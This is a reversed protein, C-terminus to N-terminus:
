EFQCHSFPDTMVACRGRGKRQMTNAGHMDSRYGKPHTESLWRRLYDCFRRYEVGKSTGSCYTLRELVTVRVPGAWTSSHIVPLYKRWREPFDAPPAALFDLYVHYGDSPSLTLKIVKSPDEHAIVVSYCGTGLVQVGAERFSDAAEAAQNEAWGSPATRISPMVAAVAPSLNAVSSM